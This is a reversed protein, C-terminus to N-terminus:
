WRNGLYSLCLYQKVVRTEVTINRQTLLRRPRGHVRAYAFAQVRTYRVAPACMILM